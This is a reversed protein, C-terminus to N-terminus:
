FDSFPGDGGSSGNNGDGSHDRDDGPRGEYDPFPSDGSRRDGGYSGGSRGFQEDYRRREEEMRKRIYDNYDIPTNNRVAFLVIGRCPLVACLFTMLFPSRAYYKRFLSSFMAVFFFLLVFWWLYGIVNLVNSALALTRMGGTVLAGDFSYYVINSEEIVHRSYYAPNSVLLLNVVLVFLQMAFYAIELLMCILGINKIKKGFITGEGSLKGTYYTNAFPLYGLWGNKLGRKKGMTSLAIGGFILLVVFLGAAVGICIYMIRSFYAAANAATSVDGGFYSSFYQIMTQPFGMLDFFEM